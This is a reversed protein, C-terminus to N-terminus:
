GPLKALLEEARARYWPMQLAGFREACDLLQARAWNADSAALVEAARMTTILADRVSGRRHAAHLAADLAADIRDREGPSRQATVLLLVRYAQPEGMRDGRTAAHELARDAFTQAEDVEGALALAEALCSCLFSLMMSIESRELMEVGDRLMALGESQEGDFCRAYGGLTQSVAQMFTSGIRKSKRELEFGSERCAVWDGRFLEVVGRTGAVAAEVYLLGTDRSLADAEKQREDALDFRGSDAHIMAEYGLPYAIFRGAASESVARSLRVSDDLMRMAEAYDGLHFLTQGHNAYVMSLLRADRQEEARAICRESYESSAAWSGLAHELFSMWYLSYSVGRPDGLREALELCNRLLERLEKSPRYVATHSLRKLTIDVRRRMQDPTEPMEGLVRVAGVYHGLAQIMAGSAVAKDGSSVLYHVAKDRDNSRTFHHALRELHEHIRDAESREIAFGVTGHLERRRQLLLMEYAVDRVIAHKFRITEGDGLEHLLGASVLEGAAKDLDVSPECVARLLPLAFSEGLVSALKLVEICDSPLRDIRARLVAAVNDPVVSEVLREAEAGGASGFDVLTNSVEEVFLPNGGTREFIRRMLSEPADAGVIRYVIPRMDDAQLPALDIRIADPGWRAQYYSRFNVVLMLRRAALGEALHHLAQDSAPDAWHWDSLLLVIPRTQALAALVAQLATLIALQPRSAAEAPIPHAESSLSLLHLLIALHESCMPLESEVRAILREAESGEGDASLLAARLMDRFPEYPAVSGFSRCQGRLVLGDAPLDLAFQECLRSKGIGPEGSIGILRGHGERVEAFCRSLIQMEERRGVFDGIRTGAAATPTAARLVRHAVLPEDRGRLRLEGVLETEFVSRIARYTEPGILIEDSAATDALRAATNVADGTVGFLGDRRDRLQTIMLGTNVGTHVRLATGLQNALEDGIERVHDRWELAARVARIPDDDHARPVGFLGMVEDGVFQNVTGGHAEVIRTAGTKLRNLVQAVEEPDFARNLATYGSLDSFLM